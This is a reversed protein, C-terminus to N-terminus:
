RKTESRGMALDYIHHADLSTGFAIAREYEDDGLQERLLAGSSDRANIGAQTWRGDLPESASKSATTCEKCDLASCM